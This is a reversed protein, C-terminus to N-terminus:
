QPFGFTNSMVRLSVVGGAAGDATDESEQAFGSSLAGFSSLALVAAVISAALKSVGRGNGTIENAIKRNREQRNRLRFFFPFRSM